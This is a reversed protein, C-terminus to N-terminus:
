LLDDEYAFYFLIGYIMGFIFTFTQNVKFLITIFICINFIINAIIFGIIKKFKGKGSKLSARESKQNLEKGRKM